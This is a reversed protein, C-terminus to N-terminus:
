DSIILNDIEKALEEKFKDPKNIVFQFAMETLDINKEENEPYVLMLTSGYAYYKDVLTKNEPNQYDYTEFKVVGNIIEDRFNQTMVMKTKAEIEKCTHCRETAHFYYVIVKPSKQQAYTISAFIFVFSIITIIKKM